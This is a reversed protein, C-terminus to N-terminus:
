GKIMKLYDSVGKEIESMEEEDDEDIEIVQKKVVNGHTKLIEIYNPKPTEEEEFDPLMNALEQATMTLQAKAAQKHAKVFQKRAKDHERGKAKDGFAVKETCIAEGLYIGDLSYVLTASHLNQPDFKIVVKKHQSAILDEAFYRNKRGFVKGGANLEFTGNQKLTVAESMLMLLRLQEKTAKRVFAKQYDRAFVQNFSFVGECIETKRNEKSNFQEIGAELARIFDEYAVGDKYNYNDPKKLISDGAHHGALLPHKDVLEGLGGHSFAREIPKAQGHGKGFQISTWFLEIGLMPVIGMPDDEKVKFRYRNSVGATLWKNAAARTNDITMKKPIGFKYILDMLALRITDSNESLDTRYALIKRTRVDQWLWTKPRVIEGNTWRVFVNHQYGDGNIWEMAEIDEVSRVMHPYLQSLAHVGDRLFTIQTQPIERKVKRKVSSPSPIIWGQEKAAIKLREYCSGFQPRENRLFDKKFFEWAEDSFDAELGDRNRGHKPLLVALWDSEDFNNVSYFWRTLTPKAIKNEKAVLGIAEVVQHGKDILMKIAKISELKKIANEKQKDTAKDFRKWILESAYNKEKSAPKNNVVKNTELFATKLIIETQLLEPLSSIKYEIGGGKGKKVRFDWGERTAKARIAVPTTPANKLGLESIQLSTLFLKSAKM